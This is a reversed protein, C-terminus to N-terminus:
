KESVEDDFACAIYGGVKISANNCLATMAFYKKSVAQVRFLNFNFVFYEKWEYFWGEGKM